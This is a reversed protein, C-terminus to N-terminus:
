PLEGACRFGIYGSRFQPAGWSRASVRAGTLLDGGGRLARDVGSAPGLPDTGVKQSYYNQDYWDAVWEWENGLTDYLGWANPQNSSAVARRKGDFWDKPDGYRSGTTGARAAYEWEAETPLRMGLSECYKRSDVWSVNVVPLNPEPSAESCIWGTSKCYRGYVAETVETQGLWFGHTLTVEHAPKERDSCESDGPSCGMTFHGPPIWVYVLGDKPNKRKQGAVLSATSPPALIKLIKPTRFASPEVELTKLYFAAAILAVGLPLFVIMRKWPTSLAPLKSHAVAPAEAATATAAPALPGSASLVKKVALALQEFGPHPSRGRWDVLNAAQISGFGLPIAVDELLAPVLIKRKKGEEAEELVWDSHISEQSWLVVVCRANALAAQIVKRYTDGPLIHPDWWVSWGQKQLAAVLPEVRSRDERAYSLFVDSM